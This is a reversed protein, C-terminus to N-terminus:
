KQFFGVSKPPWFRFVVTGQIRDRSILGFARSDASNSRNDGLVMYEDDGLRMARGEVIMSGGDTCETKELYFENLEYKTGNSSITVMCDNIKVIDGPMGIIRKVYHTGNLGPPELVVIEGRVFDRFHKSLRQVLIRDGTHLTPEMSAGVVQEPFAILKFVVMLVIYSVILTEVIEIIVSKPKNM